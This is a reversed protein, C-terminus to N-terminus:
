LPARTKAMIEALARADLTVEEGDSAEVRGEVLEVAGDATRVLAVNHDTVAGDGPAIVDPFREAARARTVTVLTVPALTTRPGRM